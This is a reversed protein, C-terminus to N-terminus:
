ARGEIKAIVGTWSHRAKARAALESAVEEPSKGSALYGPALEPKGALACTESIARERTDPQKAQVGHTLDWAAARDAGLPTTRDFPNQM